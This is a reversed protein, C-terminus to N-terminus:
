GTLLTLIILITAKPRENMKFKFKGYNSFHVSFSPHKLPQTLSGTVMENMQISLSCKSHAKARIIDIATTANMFWRRIRHSFFQSYKIIQYIDLPIPWIVIADFNTMNDCVFQVRCPDVWLPCCNQIFEFTFLSQICSFYIFIPRQFFTITRM